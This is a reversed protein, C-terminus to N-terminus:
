WYLFFKEQLYTVYPEHTSTTYSYWALGSTDFGGERGEVPNSLATSGRWSPDRLRTVVLGNCVIICFYINARHLGVM